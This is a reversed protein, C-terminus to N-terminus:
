SGDWYYYFPKKGLRDRACFLTRRNKDWIAFAFMGRFLEVCDPGYQEYAHLITETDCRTQYHHGAQELAPRLDAHNFLEGNYVIWVSGDENCMPQHGAAVDIISLRRHALSAWEDQYFGSDDPGRHRIAGAMREAVARPLNHPRTSVFGAIGCM